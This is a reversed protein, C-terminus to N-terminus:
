FTCSLTLGLSHLNRKPPASYRYGVGVSWHDGLKCAVNAFAGLTYDKERFVTTPGSGALVLAAPNYVNFEARSVSLDLSPGASVSWNRAIRTVYGAQVGWQHISETYDYSTLVQASVGGNHFVDSTAATGRGNINKLYRYSAGVFWEPTLQYSLNLGPAFKTATKNLNQINNDAAYARTGGIWVQDATPTIQLGTAQVAVASLGFLVVALLSTSKM